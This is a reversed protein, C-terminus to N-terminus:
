AGITSLIFACLFCQTCESKRGLKTWASWLTLSSIDPRWRACSRHVQPPIWLFMLSFSTTPDHPIQALLKIRVDWALRCAVEKKKNEFNHASQEQYPRQPFCGPNKSKAVRINETKTRLDLRSAFLGFTPDDQHGPDASRREELIKKSPHFSELRWDIRSVYSTERLHCPVKVTLGCSFSWFHLHRMNSSGFAHPFASPKVSNNKPQAGFEPWQPAILPRSIQGQPLSVPPWDSRFARKLFM